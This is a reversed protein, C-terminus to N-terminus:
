GPGGTRYVEIRFTPTLNPDNLLRDWNEVLWPDNGGYVTWVKWEGAEIRRKSVLFTGWTRGLNAPSELYAFAEIWKRTAATCHARVELGYDGNSRLTFIVTAHTQKDTLRNSTVVIQDPSRQITDAGAPEAGVVTLTFAGALSVLTLLIRASLTGASRATRPRIATHM